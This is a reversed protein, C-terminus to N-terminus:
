AKKTFGKKEKKSKKNNDEKEESGSSEESTEELFAIKTVLYLNIASTSGEHILWQEDRNTIQDLLEQQSEGKIKLTKYNDNDFYFRVKFTKM